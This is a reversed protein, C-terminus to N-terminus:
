SKRRFQAPTQGIHRKFHQTFSSQDCFGYDAAIASISRDTERLARSAAIVRTRLIFERPGLGFVSKFRREMQRVSMRSMAALDEVRITEHLHRRIHEVQAALERFPATMAGPTRYSQLIGMIGIIKGSRSVIPLKHVVHWDPICNADFWFEIRNLIPEGTEYIREDDDVYHQAMGDPNLDFDTMGIMEIEDKMGYRDLISRSAMMTEGRRNKAFFSVGPLLDFLLHFHQAPLIQGM